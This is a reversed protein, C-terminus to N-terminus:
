KSDNLRSAIESKLQEDTKGDTDIGLNKAAERYNVATETPQPNMASKMERELELKGREFEGRARGLNRALQPIKKTSGFLILVVAIIIIWDIPQDFM